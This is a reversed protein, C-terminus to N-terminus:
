PRPVMWDDSGDEADLKVDEEGMSEELLGLASAHAAHFRRHPLLAHMSNRVHVGVYLVDAFCSGCYGHVGGRLQAVRDM